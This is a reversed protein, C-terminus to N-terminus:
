FKRREYGFLREAGSNWSTVTAHENVSFFGYEQAGDIMLQCRNNAETLRRSLINAYCDRVFSSGLVALLEGYVLLNSRSVPPHLTATHWLSQAPVNLVKAARRLILQDPYRDFVQGAIIAGIPEGGLIIPVAVHALGALDHVLTVQGSQLAQTVATCPLEPALCFPCESAYARGGGQAGLWAEQPNHCVGLLWGNVDTLAVAVKITRAYVSLVPEWADPDLLEAVRAPTFPFEARFEGREYQSQPCAAEAEGIM